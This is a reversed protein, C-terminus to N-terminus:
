DKILLLLYKSTIMEVVNVLDILIMMRQINIISKLYGQWGGNINMM